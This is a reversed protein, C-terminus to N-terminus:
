VAFLDTLGVAATKFDDQFDKGDALYRVGLYPLSLLGVLQIPFGLLQM